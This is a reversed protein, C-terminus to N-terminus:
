SQRRDAGVSERPQQRRENAARREEHLAVNLREALQGFEDAALRLDRNEEELGQVTELCDKLTNDHKDEGVARTKGADGVQVLASRRERTYRESSAPRRRFSRAEIRRVAAGDLPMKATLASFSNRELMRRFPVDSFCRTSIQWAEAPEACAGTKFGQLEHLRELWALCHAVAGFAAVVPCADDPLLLRWHRHVHATVRAPM